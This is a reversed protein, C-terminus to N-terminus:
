TQGGRLTLYFHHLRDVESHLWALDRDNVLVDDVVIVALPEPLHGALANWTIALEFNVWPLARVM